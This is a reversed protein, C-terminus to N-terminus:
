RPIEMRTAGELIVSQPTIQVLRLGQYEGGLMVQTGDGLVIRPFDGDIVSRIDVPLRTALPGLNAVITLEDGNERSFRDILKELLRAEHYNFDGRLSLKGQSYELKTRSLIGASELKDRFVAVLRERTDMERFDVSKLGPIAVLMEQRLRAQTTEDASGTLVLRGLTLEHIRVTSKKEGLFQRIRMQLDDHWFVRWQASIGAQRVAQKLRELTAVDAVHGSMEIMEGVARVDVSVGSKQRGVIERAIELRQAAQKTKQGAPEPTDKWFALAALFGMLVVLLVIAAVFGTPLKDKSPSQAVPLAGGEPINEEIQQGGPEGSAPTEKGVPPSQAQASADPLPLDPAPWDSDTEAVVVLIDGLSLREDGLSDLLRVPQGNCLVEGGAARLAIVRDESVTLLAHEDAIARGNLIIDCRDSAGVLYEGSYLPLSAGAQAGTLVRFEPHRFPKPQSM